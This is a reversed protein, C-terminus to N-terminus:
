LEKKRLSRLVMEDFDLGQTPGEKSRLEELSIIMHHLTDIADNVARWSGGNKFELLVGNRVRVSQTVILEELLKEPELGESYLSLVKRKEEEPVTRMAADVLLGPTTLSGDKSVRKSEKHSKSMQYQTFASDKYVKMERALTKVDEITISFKEALLNDPVMPYITHFQDKEKTSLDKYSKKQSISHEKQVEEKVFSLDVKEKKM